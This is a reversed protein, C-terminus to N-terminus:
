VGNHAIIPVTSVFMGMQFDDSICRYIQPNTVSGSKFRIQFRTHNTFRSDSDLSNNSSYWGRLYAAPNQHYFPVKFMPVPQNSVPVSVFNMGSGSGYTTGFYDTTTDVFNNNNSDYAIGVNTSTNAYNEIVFNMGGRYLAFCSAWYSFLDPKFYSSTQQAGGVLAPSYGTVFWPHFSFYGSTVNTICRTTHYKLLVQRCSTIKEGICQGTPIVQDVPLTAGGIVTKDLTCPDSQATPCIPAFTPPNPVAVEFDPGAAVEVLCSISSSATSPYKLPNLVNITLLGGSYLKNWVDTYLYPVTVEFIAGERLDLVERLCYQSNANTTYGTGFTTTNGPTFSVIVRGSHFKTKVFIFRYVISGRWMGFNFATYMIPAPITATLSGISSTTSCYGPAVNFYVLEDGVLNSGNFNFTKIYAFKSSIYSFSMEDLDTSGIQDHTVANDSAVGLVYGHRAADSNNWYQKDLLQVAMQVNTLIPSSYGFYSAPADLMRGMWKLPSSIASVLPISQALDSAFKVVSGSVSHTQHVDTGANPKESDEISLIRKSLIAKSSQAKPPVPGMLRVNDMSVFVSLDCDTSGGTGSALPTYPTLYVTGLNYNTLTNNQMLNIYPAPYMFPITLEVETDCAVDILARLHQSKTTLNYNWMAAEYVLTGTFPVFRLMLYGQQFPNANIVVKIKFDARLGLFGSLKNQFIPIGGTLTGSSYYGTLADPLSASWLDTGATSSSNYIVTSLLYPRALFSKIDEQKGLEMSTVYSSYPEYVEPLTAKVLAGSSVFETTNQVAPKEATIHMEESNSEKADM